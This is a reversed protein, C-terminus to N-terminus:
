EHTRWSKECGVSPCNTPISHCPSGFQQSTVSVKKALSITEDL